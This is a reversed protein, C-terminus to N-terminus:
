VHIFSESTRKKLPRRCIECRINRIVHILFFRALGIFSIVIGIFLGTLGGIGIKKGLFFGIFPTSLMLLNLIIGGCSILPIPLDPFLDSNQMEINAKNQQNQDRSIGDIFRAMTIFKAFELEQQNLPDQDAVLKLLTPNFRSIEDRMHQELNIFKDQGVATSGLIAKRYKNRIDDTDLNALIEFILFRCADRQATGDRHAALYLVSHM